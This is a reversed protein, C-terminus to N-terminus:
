SGAALPFIPSFPPCRPFIPSFPPLLPFEDGVLFFVIEKMRPEM